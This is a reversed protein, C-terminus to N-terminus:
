LDNCYIINVELISPESWIKLYIGYFGWNMIRAGSWLIGIVRECQRLGYWGYLFTQGHPITQRQLSTIDLKWHLESCM